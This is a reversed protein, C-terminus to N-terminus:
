GLLDQDLSSLFDLLPEERYGERCDIPRLDPGHFRFPKGDPGTLLGVRKSTGLSMSYLHRLRLKVWFPETKSYIMVSADCDEFGLKLEAAEREDILLEKDSLSEPGSYGLQRDVLTKEVCEALDRDPQANYLFILRQASGSDATTAAPREISPPSPTPQNGDPSADDASSSDSGATEDSGTAGEPESAIGPPPAVVPKIRSRVERRRIEMRAADVVAAKFEPLSVARVTSGELLEYSAEPVGSWDLDRSRWQLVPLGLERAVEIQLENFSRERDAPRSGSSAGLLQVFVLCGKMERRLWDRAGEAQPRLISKPRPDFGAQQLHGEVESRAAQLEDNWRDALALFIRPEREATASGASAAARMQRLRRAIEHSLYLVEEFFEPTDEATAKPLGYPRVFRGLPDSKWFQRGNRDRLASHWLARPNEATKEDLLDMLPRHEVVFIPGNPSAELFLELEEKCWDSNAYSPSMVVLLCASQRVGDEIEPTIKVESSLRQDFWITPRESKALQREPDTNLFATSLARELSQYFTTVWEQGVAPDPVNDNWAYSIFLDHKKGPVFAM